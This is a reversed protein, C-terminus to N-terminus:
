ISNLPSIAPPAPTYQQLETLQARLSALMVDQGDRITLLQVREIELQQVREDRQALTALTEADTPLEIPIARGRDPDKREEGM